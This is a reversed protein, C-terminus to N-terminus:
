ARGYYNADHATVLTRQEDPITAISERVRRGLAALTRRYAAANTQMQTKCDPVLAGLREAIVDAIRGWLAADM